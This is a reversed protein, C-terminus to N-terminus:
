SNKNMVFILFTQIIDVRLVWPLLFLPNLSIRENSGEVLISIGIYRAFGQGRSQSGRARGASSIGRM